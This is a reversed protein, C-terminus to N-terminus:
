PTTPGALHLDAPDSARHRRSYMEHCAGRPPYRRSRRTKWLFLMGSVALTCPSPIRAVFGQTEGSITAMGSFTMGDGSIAACQLLQVGNPTAIGLYALYDALPESGRGATWILATTTPFGSNLWGVAVTGADNVAVARSAGISPLGINFVQGDRWLVADSFSLGYSYGVAVSGDVSTGYAGAGRPGTGPLPPLVQMGSDATWVFADTGSDGVITLGDASVARAESTINGPRTYGLGVMGGAETWRFAQRQQEQLGIYARGVIVSGTLDADVGFSGEGGPLTGLSEFTGPGRWRYAAHRTQDFDRAGGVVTAGDGSVGWAASIDPVGAELGFDYRGGDATWTFGPVFNVGTSFGVATGGNASLGTARSTYPGALHGVLWFQGHASQVTVFACAAVALTRFGM